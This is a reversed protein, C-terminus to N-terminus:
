YQSMVHIPLPHLRILPTHPLRDLVQTMEVDPQEPLQETTEMEEGSSTGESTSEGSSAAIM